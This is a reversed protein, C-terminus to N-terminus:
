LPTDEALATHTTMSNFIGDDGMGLEPLFDRRSVM